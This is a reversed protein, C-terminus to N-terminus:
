RTPGGNDIILAAGALPHELRRPAVIRRERM